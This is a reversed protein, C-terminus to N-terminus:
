VADRAARKDARRRTRTGRFAVPGYIIILKTTGGLQIFDILHISIKTPRWVKGPFCLPIDEGRASESERSIRRKTTLWGAVALGGAAEGNGLGHVLEKPLQNVFSRIMPNEVSNRWRLRRRRRRKRRGRKESQGVNMAFCGQGMNGAGTARSNSCFYGFEFFPKTAM